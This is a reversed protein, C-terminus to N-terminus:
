DIVYNEIVPKGEMQQEFAHLRKHISLLEVITTWSTILYQFSYGVQDFATSIRQFIVFTISGAFITPVLLLLIFIKDAQFYFQRAVNFYMYHFYLRFYNKRVSGFLEKLTVPQARNPDDEGFVLEKRYAAEVRQNRFELGPLKIGVLAMFGTGFLSWFLIALVLPYPVSGIIPLKEVHKSLEILIPLFAILTMVADLLSTGLDQMINAFRMTDEQVRQSAGEITRVEQWRSTYYDNMATRWRFIYHSIFFRSIVYVIISVVGILTYTFILDYFSTVTVSEDGGMAGVLTDYFPERWENLAVAVQVGFYTSFLIFGTGWVSWKQWPHPAKISWFTAFICFCIVSYIHLLVFSDKLFFGIGIVPEDSFNNLGLLNGLPERLQPWALVCILSWLTFSIFFWKPHPFFSKFM